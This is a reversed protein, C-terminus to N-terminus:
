GNSGGRRPVAREIAFEVLRLHSSESMPWDAIPCSKFAEVCARVVMNIPMLDAENASAVKTQNLIKQRLELDIPSSSSSAVRHAALWVGAITRLSPITLELCALDARYMPGCQEVASLDKAVLEQVAAKGREGWWIFGISAAIVAFCISLIGIQARVGGADPGQSSM